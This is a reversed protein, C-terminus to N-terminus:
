RLSNLTTLREVKGYKYTRALTNRFFFDLISEKFINFYFTLKVSNKQRCDNISM